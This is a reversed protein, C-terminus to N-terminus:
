IKFLKEIKSLELIKAKEILTSDIDKIRERLIPVIYQGNISASMEFITKLQNIHTTELKDHIIFKPCSFGLENSYRLYAFDFAVIMGKKMGSNM